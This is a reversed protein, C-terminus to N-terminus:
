LDVQVNFSLVNKNNKNTLQFAELNRETGNFVFRKLPDEM